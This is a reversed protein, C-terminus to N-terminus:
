WDEGPKIKPRNKDRTIITNIDMPDSDAPVDVIKNPNWVEAFPKNFHTTTANSMLKAPIMNNRAKGELLMKMFAVSTMYCLGHTDYILVAKGSKSLRVSLFIEDNM